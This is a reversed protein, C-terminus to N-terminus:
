VSNVYDPCYYYGLCYGTVTGVVRGDPTAGYMSARSRSAAVNVQIRPYGNVVLYAIYQYNGGSNGKPYGSYAARYASLTKLNHAAVGKLYGFNSYDGNRTPTDNGAWDHM